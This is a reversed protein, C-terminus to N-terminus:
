SYVSGSLLLNKSLSWLNELTLWACWNASNAFLSSKNSVPSLDVLIAQKTNWVVKERTFSTTVSQCRLLSSNYRSSRKLIPLRHQSFEFTNRFYKFGQSKEHYYWIKICFVIPLKYSSAYLTHKWHLSSFRTLMRFSYSCPEFSWSSLPRACFEWYFKRSCHLVKQFSGDKIDSNDLTTAVLWIHSKLM